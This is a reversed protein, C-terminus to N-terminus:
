VKRQSKSLDFIVASAYAIQRGLGFNVFNWIAATVIFGTASRPKDHMASSTTFQKQQTCKIIQHDSVHKM